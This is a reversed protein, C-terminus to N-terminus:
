TFVEALSDRRGSTFSYAAVAAHWGGILGTYVALNLAISANLSIGGDAFTVFVLVGTLLAPVWLILLLTFIPWFMRRTDRWSDGLSQFVGAESELLIPAALWWRVCLILGPLVFLVFGLLIALTSVINLVVFAGFRLRRASGLGAKSLAAGTLWCQFGATGLSLLLSLASEADSSVLGSDVASAAASLVLLTVGAKVLNQRLLNMTRAYLRQFDIEESM